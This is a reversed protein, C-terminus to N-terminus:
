GPLHEFRYDGSGIEVVVDEGVQRANRCGPADALPIDSEFVHALQMNPLHVEAHGNAPVTVAVRMRGERQSWGASYEGIITALAAYAWSLGGGPRPRVIARRYGPAAPDTDLGAVVRYLWDGIAGYAYHNFSNMEPDQFSGDPRIGDWREWITTAGQTVGYLWSPYEQRLLLEYAVDLHDFNSLVPCLYAAGVFGTTLQTGRRRIDAVLRRAAEARQSEPLLDFMLALVYATQTNSTLRGSPSAFERQFARRINAALEAYEVAEAARGIVHAAQALLTTSHAYFATAILDTDTLGIKGNGDKQDLALWDGYHFGVNHIFEDEGARRMYEVWRVMSDFQQELIRTDGYCQYMTWPIIVAADAWAASGAGREGHHQLIDPVVHPIRGDPRQDAAVDGLWKTFFAATDFNFCATRAFVQADGTWGLREDRQPCDTPVDLFNGKQGWAINHQLQNLLPESCEFEGTPEMDSHIVLATLTDPEPEGRLGGVAVYRFGQFTFCPEYVEVEGGKLIYRVEQRATRLNDRYLEGQQDLVEAHHLTIEDGRAGQVMLRVRGVLNQGFDYIVRGDPARSILTTTREQVVRVPPAVQAFLRAPPPELRRVPLWGTADFGPRDWGEQECRADYVEGNYLDSELIPGKAATWREDSTVLQMSGGAFRIELRLWLALRDGFHNRAVVFGLHGRYWGDGLKVGIANSGAVLLDTVDYTQYQLRHGYSTWGPTFLDETVPAGNITASYLGLSTIYLRAAVIPVGDAPPAVAFETRLYPAPQARSTEEEWPVGIWGAAETEGSMLGMEWVAVESWASPLDDGDWVRVRWYCQQGSTLPAGAYAHHFSRDSVVKGTDWLFPGQELAAAHAAVVIQYARQVVGRAEGELQWSLRPQPIDIGLPDYKYECRLATVATENV